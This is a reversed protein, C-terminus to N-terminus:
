TQALIMLFPLLSSIVQATLQDVDDQTIDSDDGAIEHFLYSIYGKIFLISLLNTLLPTVLL